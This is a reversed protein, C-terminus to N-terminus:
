VCRLLSPGRVILVTASGGTSVEAPGRGPHPLVDLPHAANILCGHDRTPITSTSSSVPAGIPGARAM